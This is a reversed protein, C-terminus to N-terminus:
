EEENANANENGHPDIAGPKGAPWLPLYFYFISGKEEQDEYGIKGGQAEIIERAISLGLGQHGPGLDAQVSDQGRFYKDFLFPQDALSVGPGEDCVRFLAWDAKLYVELDITQGPLSYDLANNILNAYVREMRYYDVLVQDKTQQVGPGLHARLGVGRQQCEEQFRELMRYILAQLSLPMFAAKEQRDYLRPIEQVMEIMSNLRVMMRQYYDAREHDEVLGDALNELYGKLMTLPTRLDHTIKALGSQLEEERDFFTKHMQYIRDFDERKKEM